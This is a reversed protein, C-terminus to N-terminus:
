ACNAEHFQREQDTVYEPALPIEEESKVSSKANEKAKKM